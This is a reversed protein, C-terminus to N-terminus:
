HNRYHSMKLFTRPVKLTIIGILAQECQETTELRCQEEEKVTCEEKEEMSCKEEKM